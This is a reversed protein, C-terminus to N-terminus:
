AIGLWDITRFQFGTIANTPVHAPIGEEHLYSIPEKTSKMSLESSQQELTFTSTKM